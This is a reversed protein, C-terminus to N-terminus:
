CAAGVSSKRVVGRQQDASEARIGSVRLQKTVSMQCFNRQIEVCM